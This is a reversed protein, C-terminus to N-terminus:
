GVDNGELRAIQAPLFRERQQRLEDLRLNWPLSTIGLVGPKSLFEKLYPYSKREVPPRGGLKQRAADLNRDRNYRILLVCAHGDGPM